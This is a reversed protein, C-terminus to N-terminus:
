ARLPNAAAIRRAHETAARVDGSDAGWGVMLDAITQRVLRNVSLFDTLMQLNAALALGNLSFVLAFSRDAAEDVGDILGADAAVTLLGFPVRLMGVAAPLLRNLEDTDFRERSSLQMQQLQFEQPYASQLGVFYEGFCAISVLPRLQPAMGEAEMVAEWRAHADFWAATIRDIALIQLEAVLVSKAPFYGYITGVAADVEKAIANMTLADLGDRLVIGLAADLYAARRQERLDSHM